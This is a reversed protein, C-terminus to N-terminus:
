LWYGVLILTASAGTTVVYQIVRTADVAIVIDDYGSVKGTGSGSNAFNKVVGESNGSAGNQRVRMDVWNVSDLIYGRFLAAKTGLPLSASLDATHYASDVTLPVSVGGSYGLDHFAQSIGGKRAIFM